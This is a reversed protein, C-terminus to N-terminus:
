QCNGVSPAMLDIWYSIQAVAESHVLARGLPPMRDKPGSLTQRYVLISHDGNGPVIDYSLGREGGDWGPPQKCIGYQYSHHDTEFGLRLGSVSAFGDAKHCHACNVDLYGKVRATLDQQEDGIAFTQPLSELEGLGTLLGQSAFWTLQNVMEGEIRIPKNLLLPKPGIPAITTIGNQASQHCIKCEARSPVHYTFNLTENAANISHPLDAGTEALYAENGDWRYPLATWGSERHILLRTEVLRAASADTTMTDAPLLFSKVLVTGVPLSLTDGQLVMPTNEPLFVFRRKIAYDTFLESALEYAVGAGNPARTPNSSDSFLRYDSLRACNTSMLAQRNISGEGNDCLSTAPPPTVVIPPPTAPAASDGEGGCASLMLLLWLASLWRLPLRLYLTLQSQTMGPNQM